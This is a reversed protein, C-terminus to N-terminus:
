SVPIAADSASIENRHFNYRHIASPASDAALCAIYTLPPSVDYLKWAHSFKAPPRVALLKPDDIALSVDFADLPIRLGVGEAKLLAEKRTWCRLFGNRWHDGELRSLELLEASSFYRTAVDPSVRRPQEVDIGVEINWAVALMGVDKCHSLNFRLREGTGQLRPKEGVEPAISLSDPSAGLYHALLLRTNRHSTAFSIRDRLFRFRLCREIEQDSLLSLDPDSSEDPQHNQWAWVHVVNDPLSGLESTNTWDSIVTM